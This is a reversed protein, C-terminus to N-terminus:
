QVDPIRFGLRSLTLCVNYSNQYFIIKKKKLMENNMNM